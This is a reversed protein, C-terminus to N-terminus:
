KAKLSLCAARVIKATDADPALTGCSYETGAITRRVDIQIMGSESTAEVHFGDPLKDKTTVKTGGANGATVFADFTQKMDAPVVGVALMATGAEVGVQKLNGESQDKATSGAPVELQVALPALPLWTTGGAAPAPPPTVPEAAPATAPPDSTKSSSDADKKGCAAISVLALAFLCRRSTTM